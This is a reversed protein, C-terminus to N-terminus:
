LLMLYINCGYCLCYNFLDDESISFLGINSCQNGALRFALLSRVVSFVPTLCISIVKGTDDPRLLEIVNGKAVVIEQQKPGSFNGLM